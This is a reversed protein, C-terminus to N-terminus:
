LELGPFQARWAEIWPDGTCTATERDGGGPSASCLQCEVLFPFWSGADCPCGRSSRAGRSAVAWQAGVAYGFYAQLARAAM